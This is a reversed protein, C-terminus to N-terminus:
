DAHHLLKNQYMKRDAAALLKEADAGDNPFTAHGASLSVIAEGCVERGAAIAMDCLERKRREVAGQPFDRLVLVFEDGGMRAVLDGTRCAAKLGQAVRRLVRNGELHGFRDNVEKFRDLDM